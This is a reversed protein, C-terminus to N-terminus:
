GIKFIKKASVPNPIWGSQSSTKGFFCFFRRTWNPGLGRSRGGSDGRSLGSEGAPLAEALAEAFARLRRDAEAEGLAGVGVRTGIRIVRPRESRGLPSQDIALLARLVELALSDMGENWHYTLIRRPGSHSVVRTVRTNWSDLEAFRRDEVEWGRGPFANKPSRLSRSRDRRDGYGVFLDVTQGDLRYPRNAYAPFRLTWLFDSDLPLEEGMKWGDMALPLEVSAGYLVIETATADAEPPSWEPMWISIGLLTAFLATLAVSWAGVRSSASVVADAASQAHDRTASSGSGSDARHPLLRGLLRDVLVVVALAGFFALWGQVTHTASLDSTPDLIIFSVRLLNFGYGIPPALAILLWGRLRDAPSWQVFLFTALTLMEMARLGSCSDIVQAVVGAGYIVNGEHYVPFHFLTLLATVHDVTWLRLFYFVQNTLAAPIPFAFALIVCPISWEAAFRTGFWLLAVGMSVVLFSVLLLDTAATWHGWVFLASGVLLPVFALAPSGKEAIASRFRNRNRFVLAAAIAFYVQPITDVSSFLWDQLRVEGSPDPNWFALSRYTLLGAVVGAITLIRHTRFTM